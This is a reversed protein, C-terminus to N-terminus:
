RESMAELAGRLAGAGAISVVFTLRMGHTWTSPSWNWQVFGIAWWAAVSVLSAFLLQWLAGAVWQKVTRKM